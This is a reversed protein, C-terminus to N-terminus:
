DDVTLMLIGISWLVISIAWYIAWATNNPYRSIGSPITLETGKEGNDTLSERVKMLVNSKELQTGGLCSELESKCAKINKYWFGVNEDETEYFVSTYGQTLNKREIYRLAKDIRELAIEPTNADAANKLFSGCNQEFRLEQMVSAAPTICAILIMFLARFVKM